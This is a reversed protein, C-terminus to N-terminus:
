CYKPFYKMERIIFITVLQNDTLIRAKARDRYSDHSLTSIFLTNCFMVSTNFCIFASSIKSWLNKIAQDLNLEFFKLIRNFLLLSVALCSDRKKVLVCMYFLSFFIRGNEHCRSSNFWHCLSKWDEARGVSSRRREHHLLLVKKQNQLIKSVIEMFFSCRCFYFFM